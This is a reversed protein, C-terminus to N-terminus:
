IKLFLLQSIFDDHQGETQTDERDVESHRFLDEHYNYVYM